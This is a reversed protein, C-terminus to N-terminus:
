GASRHRGQRRLAGSLGVKAKVVTRTNARVAISMGIFGALASGVAGVTATSLYLFDRRTKDDSSATDSM